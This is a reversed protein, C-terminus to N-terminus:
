FNSVKRERINNREAKQNNSMLGMTKRIASQIAPFGYLYIIPDILYNLSYAVHFIDMISMLKEFPYFRMMIQTTVDPFVVLLIFTSIILVPVKSIKSETKGQTIGLKKRKQMKFAISTYVIIGFIVICVGISLSVVSYYNMWGDQFTFGVGPATLILAIAWSIAIAMAAKRKPFILRYKLPWTAGLFRDFLLLLHSCLYVEHVAWHVFSLVDCVPSTPIVYNCFREEHLIQLIFGTTIALLETVSLNTLFLRQNSLFKPLKNLYYIGVCHLLASLLCISRSIIVTTQNSAM